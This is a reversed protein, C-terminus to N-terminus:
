MIDFMDDGGQEPYGGDQRPGYNAPHETFLSPDYSLDPAFSSSPGPAFSSSPGPAFSSSPGPAFSSSPGPTFSSPPGPTFSSSPGPAFSSSPGPTFSSPPGPTFSSSPGPAFSSPPGPTFSSSPGPAFSSSPGHEHFAPSSQGVVSPSSTGSFSLSPGSLSSSPPSPFSSSPDSPLLRAPAQQSRQFVLEVPVGLEVMRRQEELGKCVVEERKLSIRALEVEHARERDREAREEERQRKEAERQRIRDQAALELTRSETSARSLSSDGMNKLADRAESVLESVSEPISSSASPVQYPKRRQSTVSQQRKHRGRISAIDAHSSTPEIPLSSSSNSSGMSSPVLSPTSQSRVSKPVYTSTPPVARTFQTSASRQMAAASVTNPAASPVTRAFQTSASHQIAAASVANPRAPPTFQISTSSIRQMAADGVANSGPPPMFQTFQTSAAGQTHVDSLMAPSFYGQAFIDDGSFEPPLTSNYQYTPDARSSSFDHSSQLLPPAGDLQSFTPDLEYDTPFGDYHDNNVFSMGVILDRQAAPPVFDLSNIVTNESDDDNSTNPSKRLFQAFTSSLSQGSEFTGVVPNFNPLITDHLSEDGQLRDAPSVGNGTSRLQGCCKRYKQRLRANWSAEQIREPKCKYNAVVDPNPDSAFLSEAIRSFVRSRPQSNTIKQRNEAKADKTSDGALQRMETPHAVLWDLLRDIRGTGRWVIKKNRKRKGKGKGQVEDDDEDDEDNAGDPDPDIDEDQHGGHDDHRDEDDM